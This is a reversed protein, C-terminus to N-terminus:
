TGRRTHTCSFDSIERPWKLAGTWPMTVHNQHGHTCSRYQEERSKLSGIGGIGAHRAQVYYQLGNWGASWYWNQGYCLVSCTCSAGALGINKFFHRIRQNQLGREESQVQKWCSPFCQWLQQWDYISSKLCKTTYPGWQMVMTDGQWLRWEYKFPDHYILWYWNQGDLIMVVVFGVM